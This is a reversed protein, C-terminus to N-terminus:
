RPNDGETRPQGSGGPDQRAEHPRVVHEGEDTGEGAGQAALWSGLIDTLRSRIAPDSIYAPLGHEARTRRGIEDLQANLPSDHRQRASHAIM